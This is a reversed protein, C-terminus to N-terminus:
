RGMARALRGLSRALSLSVAGLSIELIRAIERYRLGEARLTLCQRDQAPLAEVVARLHEQSQNAAAQVEPDPCPDVMPRAASADAQAARERHTRYRRKLALNHAVGFVWGRLNAHPKGRRLHEYLLLFVDQIVEEADPLALGFSWLYRLLPERFRDFLGIVVEDLGDGTERAATASPSRWVALIDPDTSDFAM